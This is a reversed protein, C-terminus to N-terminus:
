SLGTPTLVFREVEDKESGSPLFGCGAFLRFSPENRKFVFAVVTVDSWRTQLERIGAALIRRGLGEGRRAPAVTVSVVAETGRREFRVVGVPEDGQWGVLILTDPSQLKEQLWRLHDEWLIPAQSFSNKRTELDNAWRWLTEADETKALRLSM